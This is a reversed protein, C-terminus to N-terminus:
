TPYLRDIGRETISRPLSIKRENAVKGLNISRDGYRLGCSVGVLSLLIGVSSLLLGMTPDIANTSALAIAGIEDMIGGLIILSSLDHKISNAKAEAKLQVFTLGRIKQLYSQPAERNM